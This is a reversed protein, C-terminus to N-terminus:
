FISSMNYNIEAQREMENFRIMHLLAEWDGNFNSLAEDTDSDSDNDSDNDSDYQLNEIKEKEIRKEENDLLKNLNFDGYYEYTGSDNKCISCEKQRMLFKNSNKLFDNKYCELCLISFCNLCRYYNEDFLELCYVCCFSNKNLLGHLEKCFFNFQPKKIINIFFSLYDPKNTESYINFGRNENSVGIIFIYNDFLKKNCSLKLFLLLHRELAQSLDIFSNNKININYNNVKLTNYITKILPTENYNNILINFLKKQAKIPPPSKNFNDKIDKMTELSVINKIKKVKITYTKDDNM